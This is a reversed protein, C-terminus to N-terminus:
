DVYKTRIFETICEKLSDESFPIDNRSYLYDWLIEDGAKKFIMCETGYGPLDAVLDARYLDSDVKFDACIGYNLEPDRSEIKISEVIKRLDEETKLM